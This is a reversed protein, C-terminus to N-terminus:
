QVFTMALFFWEDLNIQTKIKKQGCNELDKFHWTNHLM